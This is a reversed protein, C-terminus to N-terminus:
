KWRPRRGADLAEKAARLLDAVAVIDAIELGDQSVFGGRTYGQVTVTDEDEDRYWLGHLLDNRRKMAAESDKLLTLRDAQETVAPVQKIIRRALQVMASFPLGGVVVAAVEDTEFGYSPGILEAVYEFMAYELRGSWAVVKGLALYHEDDLKM